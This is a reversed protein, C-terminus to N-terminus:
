IKKLERNLLFYVFLKDLFLFLVANTMFLKVAIIFYQKKKKLRKRPNLDNERSFSLICSERKCVCENKQSRMRYCSYMLLCM